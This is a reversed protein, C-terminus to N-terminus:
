GNLLLFMDLIDGTLLHFLRKALTTQCGHGISELIVYFFTNYSIVVILEEGRFVLKYNYKHAWDTIILYVFLYSHVYKPINVDKLASM